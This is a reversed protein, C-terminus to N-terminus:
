AGVRTKIVVVGKDDLRKVAYHATIAWGTVRAYIDRDSEILARRKYLLGLAGKRIVLANYSDDADTAGETKTALDSIIVPVGGALTGVQGRMITAGAGFTTVSQFAPDRLLNVHQRSHIVIGAVDSPRWKDGFAAIAETIGGDWDLTDYLTPLVIPSSGVTTEAAARLDADIKEALADSLAGRAVASPNGLSTIEATDTVEVATGVEKIVATADDTTLKQPVIPVGESLDAAKALRNFKPFHITDGPQGVLEDSFTAVQTMVAAEVAEKVAVDRYVEPQILDSAMTTAM